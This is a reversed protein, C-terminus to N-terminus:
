SKGDECTEVDHVFVVELARMAKLLNRHQKIGRNGPLLVNLIAFNAAIGYLKLHLKFLSFQDKKFSVRDLL